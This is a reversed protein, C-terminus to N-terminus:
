KIRWEEFGNLLATEIIPTLVNAFQGETFDLTSFITYYDSLLKNTPQRGKIISVAKKHHEYYQKLYTGLRPIRDRKSNNISPDSPILNWVLDHSVWAYPIFHDLDYRHIQISNGTYICNFQEQNLIALDWFTRKQKILGSRIPRFLKRGINPTNPNRAQLYETLKWYTFSRIIELNTRLYSNWNENLQIYEAHLEYPTEGLKSFEYIHKKESKPPCWPSLFWHPVQKDFHMLIGNVEPYASQLLKSRIQEPSADDSLGEIEKSRTIAETLKDQIGFSIKFYNIVYWANGLMGAFLEKKSIKMLGQEICDLVSLLWYFKYPTSTNKFCQSLAGINLSRETPLQIM